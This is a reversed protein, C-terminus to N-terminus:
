EYLLMMIEVDEETNSSLMRRKVEDAANKYTRLYKSGEELPM